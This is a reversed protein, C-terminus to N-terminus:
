GLLRRCVAKFYATEGKWSFPQVTLVEYDVGRWRVKDRRRIPAFAYIAVYDNLVYGPELLVEDVRAPNVVAQIEIYEGYAVAEGAAVVPYLTLTEGIARM